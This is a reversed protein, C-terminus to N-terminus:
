GSINVPNQTGTSYATFTGLKFRSRVDAPVNGGSKMGLVPKIWNGIFVIGNQNGRLDLNVTTGTFGGVIFIHEAAQPQYQVCVRDQIAPADSLTFNGSEAYIGAGMGNGATNGSILGGSLIMNPDSGTSGSSLSGGSSAGSVADVGGTGGGDKSALLIGGGGYLEYQTSNNIIKGGKCEFLGGDQVFVGGGGYPDITDDPVALNGSIEGDELIFLASSGRLSVGGGGGAAQNNDIVGGKQVFVGSSTGSLHSYYGIFVGGGYLHCTNDKIVGGKMTFQGGNVLVGGAYNKSTNGSIEGGEMIFNGGNYLFVGGVNSAQNGYIRGGTMIFEGGPNSPSTGNFDNQGIYVGAAAGNTTSSSVNNAITGGKML